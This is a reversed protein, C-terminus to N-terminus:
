CKVINQGKTEERAKNTFDQYKDPDDGRLKLLKGQAKNRTQVDGNNSEYLARKFQGYDM